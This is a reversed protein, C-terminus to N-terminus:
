KDEYINGIVEIEDHEYLYNNGLMYCGQEVDFEVINESKGLSNPHQWVVKDGEYIEKGNKDLLGTFAVWIANKPIDINDNDFMFCNCKGSYELSMTNGEFLWEKEDVDWCKFKHERM